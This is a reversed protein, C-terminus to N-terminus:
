PRNKIKGVVRDKEGDVNSSAEIWANITSRKKRFKGKAKIKHELKLSGGSAVESSLYTGKKAAATINKKGGTKMFVKIRFKSTTGKSKIWYSDSINGENEVKVTLKVEKGETKVSEKQGSGSSNYKNNGKPASAKEGIRTDPQHLDKEFVLVRRQATDALYIRGSSDVGIGEAPGIRSATVGTELSAFDPQALLLDASAGNALNIADSFGLVRRSSFESVWLRGEPDVVADRPGWFGNDLAGARDGSYDSQGLVGDADDGDAKGAASNFRLVRHNGTDVVYLNGADDCALGRPGEMGDQDTAIGPSTFNEQGLVRSAAAGDAANIADFFVLVRSNGTDSVFLNGSPDIAIGGPANFESDSLGTDGTVFDSQGLVGDAPSSNALSSANNFRLVRANGGDVVWLNGSADVVAKSPFSMGTATTTSIFTEFDPQGLVAEAAAGNELASFSDFRVVRNRNSEVIFIKGTAPDIAIDNPVYLGTVGDGSDDSTFDPQGLVLVADPDLTWQEGAKISFPLGFLLVATTFAFSSFLLSPIFPHKM